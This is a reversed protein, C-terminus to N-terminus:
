RGPGAFGPPYPRWVLHLVAHIEGKTRHARALESRRTRFMPRPMWLNQLSLGGKLRGLGPGFKLAPYLLSIKTSLSLPLPFPWHSKGYSGM